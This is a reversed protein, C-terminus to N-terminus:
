EVFYMTLIWLGLMWLVGLSLRCEGRWFGGGVKISSVTSRRLSERLAPSLGARITGSLMKGFEVIPILFQAASSNRFVVARDLRVWRRFRLL